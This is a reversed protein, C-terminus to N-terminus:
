RRFGLILLTGFLLSLAVESWGLRSLSLWKQRTTLGWAARVAALAFPVVVLPAIWGFWVLGLVFIAVAFHLTITVGALNGAGAQRHALRARIRSKVYLIGCGFFATNLVWVLWGRSGLGGTAAVWAVLASLSLGSAGALEAFLGRDAGRKARRIREGALLGGVFALPLLQYFKWHVVLFLGFAAALAGYIWVLRRVFVRDPKGARLYARPVLLLELPYRAVFTLFTALLALFVPATWHGAIVAVTLFPILLIAWAGHERPFASALSRLPKATSAVM